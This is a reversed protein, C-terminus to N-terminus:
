YEPDVDHGPGETPHYQDRFIPNGGSPNDLIDFNCNAAEIEHSTGPGFDEFGDSIPQRWTLRYEIEYHGARLNGVDVQYFFRLVGDHEIPGSGLANELPAGNMKVSYFSHDLHQGLFEEEKVFWSWFITINDTNYIIGPTALPYKDCEAFILGATTARYTESPRAGVVVLAEPNLTENLITGQPTLIRALAPAPVQNEEPQEGGGLDVSGVEANQPAACGDQADDATGEFETFTASSGIMVKVSGVAGEGLTQENIYPIQESVAFNGDQQIQRIGTLPNGTGGPGAFVQYFVDRGTTL